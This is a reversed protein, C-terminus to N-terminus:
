AAVPLLLASPSRPLLATPPPSRPTSLSFPFCLSLPLEVASQPPPASSSLLPRLLPLARAMAAAEAGPLLIDSGGDPVLLPRIWRRPRPPTQIRRQPRPPPPDVALSSTPAPDVTPSSTPPQPGSEGGPVPDPGSRGGPLLHPCIQEGVRVASCSPGREGGHDLRAATTPPLPLLPAVM